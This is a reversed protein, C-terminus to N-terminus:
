NTYGYKSDGDRWCKISAKWPTTGQTKLLYMGYKLNDLPNLIDLGMKEMTSQHYYDNIQWYSHDESWLRGEKNYNKRTANPNNQSECSIIAKAVTANVNYIRALGDIEDSLTEQKTTTAVQAITPSQNLGTTVQLFM